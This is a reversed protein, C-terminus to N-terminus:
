YTTFCMYNIYIEYEVDSFLHSAYVTSLSSSLNGALFRGREYSM